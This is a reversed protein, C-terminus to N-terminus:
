GRQRPGGQDSFREPYEKKLRRAITDADVPWRDLFREVLLNAIEYHGLQGDDIERFASFVDTWDMPKRRVDDRKRGKGDFAQAVDKTSLTLQGEELTVVDALSVVKWENQLLAGAAAKAFTLVVTPQARSGSARQTLATFRANSSLDFALVVRLRGGKGPRAFM